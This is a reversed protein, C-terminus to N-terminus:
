IGLHQIQCEKNSVRYITLSLFLSKKFRIGYKPLSLASLVKQNEQSFNASKALLVDL